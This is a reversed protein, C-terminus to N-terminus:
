GRRRFSADLRSTPCTGLNVTLIMSPWSSCAKVVASSMVNQDFSLVVVSRLVYAALVLSGNDPSISMQACRMLM